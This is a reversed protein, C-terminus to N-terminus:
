PKRPSDARSGLLRLLFERKQSYYRNPYYTDDWRGASHPEFFPTQFNRKTAVIGALSAVGLCLLAAGFLSKRRPALFGAFFVLWCFSEFAVIRLQPTIVSPFSALLAILLMDLDPPRDPRRGISAALLVLGLLHLAAHPLGTFFPLPVLQTVMPEVWHSAANAARVAVSLKALHPAEYQTHYHSYHHLQIALHAAMLLVFGVALRRQGSRWFRLAFAAPVLMVTEKSMLGLAMLPLSRWPRIGDASALAAFTFVFMLLDNRQSIWVVPFATWPLLTWGAAAFLAARDSGTRRLALEHALTVALAFLGLNFLHDVLPSQVLSNTLAFSLYWVPRFLLSNLSRDIAERWTVHILGFDDNVYGYGAADGYVLAVLLLLFARARWSPNCREPTTNTQM